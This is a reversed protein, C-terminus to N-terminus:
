TYILVKSCPPCGLATLLWSVISVWYPRPSVFFICKWPNGRPAVFSSNLLTLSELMQFHLSALSFFPYLLINGIWYRSTAAQCEVADSHSGAYTNKDSSCKGHLHFSVIEGLICVFSSLRVRDSLIWPSLMWSFFHSRIFQQLSVASYLDFRDPTNLHWVIPSILSCLPDPPLAPTCTPMVYHEPAAYTPDIVTEDPTQSFIVNSVFWDQSDTFQQFLCWNSHM